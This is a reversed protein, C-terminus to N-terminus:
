TVQGYMRCDTGLCAAHAESFSQLALPHHCALSPMTIPVHLHLAFTVASVKALLHAYCPLTTLWRQNSSVVHAGVSCNGPPSPKM